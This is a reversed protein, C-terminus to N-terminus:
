DPARRRGPRARPPSATPRPRGRASRRRGAAEAPSRAPGRPAARGATPVAAARGVRGARRLVALATLTIWRSPGGPRELAFPYFPTGIGYQSEEETGFDPHLADLNWTGDPNRKSELLDLAPGLRPDRGYGLRSLLELGVLFDYYYHVPYHTRRWPAYAPGGDDLLRRSLYFEAGSAIAREVAPTRAAPPLAALAALPEWCDLSGTARRWCYWGGDRKQSTVLWDIAEALRPDDAYGFRALMRVANGTFCAESDRGGLDGDRGGYRAFILEAARAIGPTRRTLGLDCLVLLRWNTAIYKPRYLDKSGVWAGDPLQEDLIAKAWGSRPIKARAAERERDGEPRGEVEVLWRWRLAPEDSQRIWREPDPAGTM